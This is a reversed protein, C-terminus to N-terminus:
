KEDGQDIIEQAARSLARLQEPGLRRGELHLEIGNGLVVRTWTSWPVTVPKALRTPAPAPPGHLRGAIEALPVGAEQLERIRILTRLHGETYRSGRGTGVPAPLLERQVYYRVTRRSVGGRRALEGITYGPADSPSPSKM